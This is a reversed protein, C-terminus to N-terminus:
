NMGNTMLNEMATQMKTYSYLEINPVADLKAEEPNYITTIM